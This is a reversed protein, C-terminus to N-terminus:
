PNAAQEAVMENRVLRQIKDRATEDSTASFYVGVRYNTNGVRMTFAGAEKVVKSKAKKTEAKIMEKVAGERQPLITNNRESYDSCSKNTGYGLGGKENRSPQLRNSLM